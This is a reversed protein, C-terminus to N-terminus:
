RRLNPIVIANERILAAACPQQNHDTHPAAAIAIEAAVGRCQLGNLVKRRREEKAWGRLTMGLTVCHLSPIEVIIITIKEFLKSHLFVYFYDDEALRAFSKGM